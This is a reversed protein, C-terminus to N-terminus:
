ATVRLTQALEAPVFIGKCAANKHTGLKSPASRKRNRSKRVAGVLTPM